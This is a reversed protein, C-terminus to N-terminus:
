VSSDRIECQKRCQNEVSYISFWDNILKCVTEIKCKRGSTTFFHYFKGGWSITFLPLSTTFFYYFLPLFTTFNVVELIARFLDGCVTFVILAIPWIDSMPRARVLLIRWTTFLVRSTTFFHYFLPLITTFFHYLLPLFTTFFHYFLPLIRPWGLSSFASVPPLISVTHNTLPKVNGAEARNTHFRM